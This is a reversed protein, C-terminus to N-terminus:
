KIDIAKLKKVAEISSLVGDEHFGYKHYAGCFFSLNRGQLAPIKNQAELAAYDFIPHELQHTNYIKDKNIKDGPNLSVFIPYKKDINQLSNMWYTLIPLDKDTKKYIWSAWYMKNKPMVSSDSHLVVSNKSYKVDRLMDKQEIDLNNGIKLVENSHNSFIVYDYDSVGKKSSIKITEGSREVGLVENNLRIKAQLRNKLAEIYSKSGNKIVYWQPQNILSLLGHNKMFRIYSLYPFQLIQSPTCSWISSGMPVIYSEIFFKSFKNIKLFDALSQKNSKNLSNLTNKSLNNFRNINYLLNYYKPNLLRAKNAFYSNFDKFKIEPDRPETSTIAFSMDSQEIDVNLDCIMKYFNPYNKKNFVIFGTDVNFNISDNYNINLTRTHGGIYNNKEYITLDYTKDLLYAAYLGSIGSGVIAIKKM